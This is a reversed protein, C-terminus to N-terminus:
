NVSGNHVYIQIYHMATLQYNHKLAQINQIPTFSGFYKNSTHSYQSLYYFVYGTLQLNYQLFELNLLQHSCLWSGPLHSKIM